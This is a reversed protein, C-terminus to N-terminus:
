SLAREEDSIVERLGIGGLKTSISKGNLLAVSMILEITGTELDVSLNNHDVLFVQLDKINEFKDRLTEDLDMM